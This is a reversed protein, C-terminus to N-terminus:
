SVVVVCCCFLLLATIMKGVQCWVRVLSSFGEEWVRLVCQIAAGDSLGALQLFRM